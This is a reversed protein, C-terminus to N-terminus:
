WTLIEKPSTKTHRNSITVFWPGILNFCAMVHRHLWYCFYIEILFLYLINYQILCIKHSLDFVKTEVQRGVSRFKGIEFRCVFVDGQYLVLVHIIYSITIKFYWPPLLNVYGRSITAMKVISRCLLMFTTSYM